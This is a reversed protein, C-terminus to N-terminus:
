GTVLMFHRKQHYVDVMEASHVVGKSFLAAVLRNAVNSRDGLLGQTVHVYNTAVASLLKGDDQRLSRMLRSQFHGLAQTGINTGLVSRADTYHGDRDAYTSKRNVTFM